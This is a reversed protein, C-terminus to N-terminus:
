GWRVFAHVRGSLSRFCMLAHDVGRVFRLVGYSSGSCNEFGPHAIENRRSPDFDVLGLAWFGSMGFTWARFGLGEFWLDGLAGLGLVGFDQPGFGALM